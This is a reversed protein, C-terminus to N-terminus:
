LKMGRPVTLAWGVDILSEMGWAQGTEVLEAVRRAEDYVEPLAVQFPVFVSV